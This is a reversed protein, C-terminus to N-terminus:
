FQYDGLRPSISTRSPGPDTVDGYYVNRKQAQGPSATLTSRSRLVAFM